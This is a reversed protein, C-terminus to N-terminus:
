GSQPPGLAPFVQDLPKDEPLVYVMGAQGRMAPWFRQEFFDVPLNICGYSIRNDAATPSALREARRETPDTSRLRHISVAAEYDVWVVDEGNINRGPEAVFRGAPTTREEPRIAHIPREGIGPVTDDGRAHGLLVPSSAAIRGGPQFLHVRAERKDLIVFPLAGNDGSAVVWRAVRLADPSLTEGELELVRRVPLAAQPRAGATASTNPQVPRTADKWAFLALVGAAGVLLGGALGRWVDKDIWRKLMM